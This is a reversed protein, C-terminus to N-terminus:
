GAGNVGLWTFYPGGPAAENEWLLRYFSLSPRQGMGILAATACVTDDMDPPVRSTERGEYSWSGDDNREAYLFAGAAKQVVEAGPIYSFKSVSQAVFTTTYICCRYPRADTMDARQATFTPLEGSSRQNAQLWAIAREIHVNPALMTSTSIM